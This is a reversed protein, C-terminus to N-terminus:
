NNWFSLSIFITFKIMKNISEYHHSCCYFLYNIFHGLLLVNSFFFFFLLLLQFYNGAFGVHTVLKLSDMSFILLISEVVKANRAYFQV